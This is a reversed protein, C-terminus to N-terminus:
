ELQPGSDAPAGSEDKLRVGTGGRELAERVLWDIRGAAEAYPLGEPRVNSVCNREADTRGPRPDFTLYVGLSDPSSLGPREGILVAVLQAGLEAGIADGLAVRAQLAVIVAPGGWREPALARLEALLPAAHRQAAIASLGDAIVVAVPSPSASPALADAAGDALRRGLDPRALYVGRDPAASRVVAPALGMARLEAELAPVDLGAHVADRARAHALALALVESTPLAPGARGLGIRAPTYARLRELPGGRGRPALRDTV